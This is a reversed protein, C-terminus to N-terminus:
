RRRKVIYKTKYRILGVIIGNKLRIALSPEIQNQKCANIYSLVTKSVPILESINEQKDNYVAYYRVAGKDTTQSVIREINQYKVIATDYQATQACARTVFLMFIFLLILLGIKHGPDLRDHDNKKPKPEMKHTGILEAVQNYTIGSYYLAKGSSIFMKEAAITEWDDSVFFKTGKQLYLVTTEQSVQEHEMRNWSQDIKIMKEVYADAGCTLFANRLAIENDVTLGRHIAVPVADMFAKTRLEDHTFDNIIRELREPDNGITRLVVQYRWNKNPEDHEESMEDIVQKSMEIGYEEKLIRATKSEIADRLMQEINM